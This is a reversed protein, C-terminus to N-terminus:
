RDLTTTSTLMLRGDAFSVSSAPAEEAGNTLAAKLSSAPGSIQLRLPVQQGRVTASGEWTGSIASKDHSQSFASTALLLIGALLKM